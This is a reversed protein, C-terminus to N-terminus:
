GRALRTAFGTRVISSLWEDAAPYEPLNVTSTMDSQSGSARNGLVLRWQEQNYWEEDEVPGVKVRKRQLLGGQAVSTEGTELNVANYAPAPIDLLAGKMLAILAYEATARMLVKPIRDSRIINDNNDCANLRPWELSQLDDTMNRRNGVFRTGFRKDIYDTAKIIAAQVKLPEYPGSPQIVNKMGRDTHFERFYDEEIYANADAVVTGDEVTFAM